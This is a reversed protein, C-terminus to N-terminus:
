MDVLYTYRRWDPIGHAEEQYDIVFCVEAETHETVSSYWCPYSVVEEDRIHRTSARKQLIWILRSKLDSLNAEEFIWLRVYVRMKRGM